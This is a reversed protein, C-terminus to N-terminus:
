WEWEAEEEGPFDLGLLAVGLAGGGRREVRLRVRSGALAAEDYLLPAGVGDVTTRLAIWGAAGPTVQLRAAAAGELRVARLEERARAPPRGTHAALAAYLSGGEPLNLVLDRFGPALYSRQWVVPRGAVSRLRELRVLPSGIPLGLAAAAGARCVGETRALVRTETSWQRAAAEAAFGPLSPWEDGRWEAVFTGVGHEVRVLGEEELARLARRVTIATTGYERALEQIAALRAGAALRGDLVQARLAAAIDPYGPRPHSRIISM